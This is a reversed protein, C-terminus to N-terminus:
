QYKQYKMQKQLEEIKTNNSQIFFMNNSVDEELKKKYVQKLDDDQESELELLKANLSDIEQQLNVNLSKLDNMEKKRSDDTKALVSHRKENYDNAEKTKENHKKMIAQMEKDMYTVDIKQEQELEKLKENTFFAVWKGTEAVYVNYYPDNKTLVSAAANASELTEFVGRVKLMAPIDSKETLIYSLLYYSHRPDVKDETLYDTM